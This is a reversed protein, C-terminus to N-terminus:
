SVGRRIPCSTSSTLWATLSIHHAFLLPTPHAALGDRVVCREGPDPVPDIREDGRRGRAERDQDERREDEYEGREERQRERRARALLCREHIGEEGSDRHYANGPERCDVHCGVPRREAVDEDEDSHLYAADPYQGERRDEAEHDAAAQPQPLLQEGRAVRVGQTDPLARDGLALGHAEALGAVEQERDGDAHDGYLRDDGHEQEGAHEELADVGEVGGPLRYVDRRHREGVRSEQRGRLAESGIGAIDPEQADHHDPDDRARDAEGDDVHERAVQAPRALPRQV